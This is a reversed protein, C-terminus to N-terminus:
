RSTQNFSWSGRKRLPRYVCPSSNCYYTATIFWVKHVPRPVLQPLVNRRCTAAVFLNSFKHIRPRGLLIKDGQFAACIWDLKIKQSKNRHCFGTAFVFILKWLFKGTYMDETDLLRSEGPRFSPRISLAQKCPPPPSWTPSIVRKPPTVRRDMYDIM